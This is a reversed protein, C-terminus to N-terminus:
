EGFYEEPTQFSKKCFMVWDYGKETAEKLLKRFDVSWGQEELFGVMYGEEWEFKKPVGMIHIENEGSTGLLWGGKTVLLEWDYKQISGVAASVMKQVAHNDLKSM